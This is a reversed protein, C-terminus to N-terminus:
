RATGSELANDSNREGFHGGNRYEHATFPASHPQLATNMAQTLMQFTTAPLAAMAALPNWYQADYHGGNEYPPTLSDQALAPSAVTALALVIGWRINKKM